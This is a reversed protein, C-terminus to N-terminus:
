VSYITPLTLHTYSVSASSAFVLKGVRHAKCREMFELTAKVNHTLDAALDKEMDVPVTSAILHYVVDSDAIAENVAGADSFDAQIWDVEFALDSPRLNRDFVRVRHGQALLAPVLASGIFGYGAVTCFRQRGEKIPM